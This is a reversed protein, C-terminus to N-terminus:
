SLRLDESGQLDREWDRKCENCTLETLDMERWLKGECSNSATKIAPDDGYNPHATGGTGLDRLELENNGKAEAVELRATSDDARCENSSCEQEIAM